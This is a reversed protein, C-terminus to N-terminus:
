TRSPASQSAMVKTVMPPVGGMGRNLSMDALIPMVHVNVNCILDQIADDLPTVRSQVAFLWPPPSEGAVADLAQLLTVLHLSQDEVKQLADRILDVNAM